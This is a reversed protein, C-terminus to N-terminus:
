LIYWHWEKIKKKEKKKPLYVIGLERVYYDTLFFFTM